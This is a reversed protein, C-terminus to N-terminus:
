QEKRTHHERRWEQLEKQAERDADEQERLWKEWLERTISEVKSEMFKSLDDLTKSLKEVKVTQEDRKILLKQNQYLLDSVKDKLEQLEANFHTQIRSIEQPVFVYLHPEGKLYWEKIQDLSYRRYAYSLGEEHGMLAEVIEKPV